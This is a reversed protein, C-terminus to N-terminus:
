ITGRLPGLDLTSTVLESANFSPSSWFDEATAQTSFNAWVAPHMLYEFILYRAIAEAEITRVRLQRLPDTVSGLGEFPGHLHEVKSRIKYLEQLDAASADVLRSIRDVFDSKGKGKRSAVFGDIARVFQHLRSDLEPAECGLRFARIARIMRHPLAPHQQLAAAVRAAHALYEETLAVVPTGETYYTSAYRRHSRVSPAGETRTGGMATLQGAAFFPVAILLGLFLDYARSRLHDEDHDGVAPATAWAFLTTKELEAAQLRGLNERWIDLSGAPLQYSYFLDEGERFVEVPCGGSRLTPIAFCFFDGVLHRDVAMSTGGHGSM